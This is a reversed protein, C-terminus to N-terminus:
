ARRRREMLICGGPYTQAQSRVSSITPQRGIVYLARFLNKCQSSTFLDDGENYKTCVISPQATFPKLKYMVEGERKTNEEWDVVKLIGDIANRRVPILLAWPGHRVRPTTPDKYPLSYFPDILPLLTSPPGSSYSLRNIFPDLLRCVAMAARPPPEAINEKISMKSASSKGLIEPGIRDAVMGALATTGVILGIVDVQTLADIFIQAKKLSM